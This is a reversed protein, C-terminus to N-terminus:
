FTKIGQESITLKGETKDLVEDLTTEQAIEQLTLGKPSVAIVALETIIINVCAKATIPLNCRRLIKKQGKKTCHTTAVILTNAKQALEMAGGIGPTHRGPMIWNALDGNEDVELAGLVSIDLRKSRVLAFSVASDVFSAGKKLQIYTGGADILDRDANELNCDRGMGLIGNESHVIVNKEDPIYRPIWTPIGIGLNIVNGFGIEQAARRCIKDKYSM